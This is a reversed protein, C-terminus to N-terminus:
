RTMKCAEAFENRLFFCPPQHHTLDHKVFGKKEDIPTPNPTRAHSSYQSSHRRMKSCRLKTSSPKCVTSRTMKLLKIEQPNQPVILLPRKWRLNLPSGWFWRGEKKKYRNEIWVIRETEECSKKRMVRVWIFLCGNEKIRLCGGLM